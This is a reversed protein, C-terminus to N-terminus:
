AANARIRLHKAAERFSLPSLKARNKNLFAKVAAPATKAYERLAWGIAKRIFLEEEGAQKLCHCFLQKEDTQNKHIIHSLLAARRFWLDRQSIWKEIQPKMSKRQHLLLHGALHVAVEDVLDWWAGERILRKYLTLSSMTIFDPYSRALAIATYKEERHPQAWLVMVARQYRARSDLPFRILLEKCVQERAPKHVGYFPMDTKMYAAMEAAKGANGVALYRRRVFRVLDEM